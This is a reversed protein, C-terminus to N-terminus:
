PISHLLTTWGPDRRSMVQAGPVGATLDAVWPELWSDDDSYGVYERVGGTTVVLVLRAREDLEIGDRVRQEIEALRHEEAPTPLGDAGAVVLAVAVAIQIDFGLVPALAAALPDWRVHVPLAHEAQGTAERWPEGPPPVASALTVVPEPAPRRGPFPLQVRM